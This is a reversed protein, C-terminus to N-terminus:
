SAPEWKLDCCCKDYTKKSSATPSEMRWRV